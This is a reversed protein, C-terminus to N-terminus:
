GSASRCTDTEGIKPPIKGGEFWIFLESNPCELSLMAKTFNEENLPFIKVEWWKYNVQVRQCQHSSISSADPTYGPRSVSFYPTAHIWLSSTHGLVFHARTEPAVYVWESSWLILRRLTVGKRLNWFGLSVSFTRSKFRFEKNDRNEGMHWPPKSM